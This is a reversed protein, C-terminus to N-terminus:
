AAEDSGRPDREIAMAAVAGQKEVVAYRETQGVVTELEPREHGPIVPFHTPESRVAEYEEVTMSITDTCTVDACECLFDWPEDTPVRGADGIDRIRENIERFLTQNRGARREQDSPAGSM